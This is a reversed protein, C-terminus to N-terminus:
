SVELTEKTLPIWEGGDPSRPNQKEFEKGQKKSFSINEYDADEDPNDLIKNKQKASTPVKKPKEWHDDTMLKEHVYHYKDVKDTDSEAQEFPETIMKSNDEYKKKIDKNKSKRPIRRNRHNKEVDKYKDEFEEFVKELYEKDEDFENGFEQAGVDDFFGNKEQVNDELDVQNYDDYETPGFEEQYDHHHPTRAQEATEGGEGFDFEGGAFDSGFGSALEVFDFLPEFDTEPDYDAKKMPPNSKEPKRYPDKYTPKRYKNRKFMELGETSYNFDLNRDKNRSMKDNKSNLNTNEKVFNERKYPNSGGDENTEEPNNSNTNTEKSIDKQYEFPDFEDFDSFDFDEMEPNDFFEEKYDTDNNDAEFKGDKFADNSFKRFDKVFEKDNIEVIDSFDEDNFQSQHVQKKVVPIYPPYFRGPVRRKFNKKTNFGPRQPGNFAMKPKFNPPTIKIPELRLINRPPAQFGFNPRKINPKIDNQFTEQPANVGANVIKQNRFGQNANRKFTKFPNKFQTNSNESFSIPKSYLSKSPNTDVTKKMDVEPYKGQHPKYFRQQKLNPYSIKQYNGVDDKIGRFFDNNVFNQSQIPFNSNSKDPLEKAEPRLLNQYGPFSSQQYFGALAAQHLSHQNSQRLEPVKAPQHQSYLHQHHPGFFGGVDGAVEHYPKTASNVKRKTKQVLNYDGAINQGPDYNGAINKGEEGWGGWGPIDAWHDASSPWDALSEITALAKSEQTALEEQATVSVLLLWWM